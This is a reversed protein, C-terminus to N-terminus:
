FLNIVLFKCWIGVPGFSLPVSMRVSMGPTGPITVNMFLSILVCNKEKEKANDLDSVNLNWWFNLAWATQWRAKECMHQYSLDNLVCFYYNWKCNVVAIFAVVGPVSQVNFSSYNNNTKKPWINQHLITLQSGWWWILARLKDWISSAPPLINYVIKRGISSTNIFLDFSCKKLEKTFFLPNKETSGTTLLNSLVDKIAISCIISIDPHTYFLAAFHTFIDVIVGRLFKTQVKSCRPVYPM